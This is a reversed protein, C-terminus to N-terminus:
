IGILASQGWIEVDANDYGCEAFFEELLTEAQDREQENPDTGTCVLVYTGKADLCDKISKGLADKSPAAKGFLENKIDGENWPKFSTGTKLQLATQEAPIFSDIWDDDDVDTTEVSADVGGDPVNIRSSVHVHTTPFGLRRAEAWLLDAMLEVARAADLA